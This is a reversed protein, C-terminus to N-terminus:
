TEAGASPNKVDKLWKGPKFKPVHKKPVAVREGTRPNRGDRPPRTGVWMTGFGRVEVRGGDALAQKMADLLVKVSLEADKDSLQSFRRALADILESRTMGAITDQASM